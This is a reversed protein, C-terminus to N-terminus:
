VEYLEGNHAEFTFVCGDTIEEDIIFHYLMQWISTLYPTVNDDTIEMAGFAHVLEFEVDGLRRTLRLFDSHGAKYLSIQQATGKKYVHATFLNM